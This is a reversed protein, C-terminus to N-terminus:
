ILLLLLFGSYVFLWTRYRQKDQLLNRFEQDLAGDLEDIGQATPVADIQALLGDEVDRQRRVIRAHRILLRLPERLSEPASDVQRDLADITASVRAGLEAEPLLSFRLLDALLRGTAADLADLARAQAPIAAKQRELLPKFAAVATPFFRLSNQLVAHQSKFQEVLDEKDAFTAQVKLLAADLRSGRTMHVGEILRERLAHVYPLPATISDYNNNIGIRSKLINVNWEADLQRLERLEAMFRDRSDVNVAQTQLYLFGSVSLLVVFCVGVFASRRSM